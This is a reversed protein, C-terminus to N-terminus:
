AAGGDRQSELAAIRERLETLARQHQEHMFEIAVTHQTNIMNQQHAIRDHQYRLVKWLLQRLLAGAWGFPGPKRPMYYGVTSVGTKHWMLRVLCDLLEPESQADRMVLSSCVDELMRPAHERGELM